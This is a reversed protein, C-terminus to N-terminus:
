RANRRPTLKFDAISFFRQMPRQFAKVPREPAV